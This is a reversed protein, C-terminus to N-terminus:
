ILRTLLRSRSPPHRRCASGAADNPTQPRAKHALPSSLDLVSCNARCRCCWTCDGGRTAQWWGWRPGSARYAMAFNSPPSTASHRRPSRSGSSANPRKGQLLGAMSDNFFCGMASDDGVDCCPVIAPFALTLCHARHCSPVFPSLRPSALVAHAGAPPTCLREVLSVLGKLLRKREEQIPNAQGQQFSRLAERRRAAASPHMKQSPKVAGALLEDVTARTAALNPDLLVTSMTSPNGDQLYRSGAAPESREAAPAPSEENEPRAQMDGEARKGRRDRYSPHFSPNPARGSFFETAPRPLSAYRPDLHTMPHVCSCSWLQVALERDHAGVAPLWCLPQLMGEIAATCACHAESMAELGALVDQRSKLLPLANGITSQLAELSLTRPRLWAGFFVWLRNCARAM